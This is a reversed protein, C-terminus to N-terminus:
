MTQKLEMKGKGREALEMQREYPKLKKKTKKDGGSRDVRIISRRTARRKGRKKMKLRSGGDEDKEAGGKKGRGRERETGVIM